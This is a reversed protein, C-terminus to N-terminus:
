PKSCASGEAACCVRMARPALGPSSDGGHTGRPGPGARGVGGELAHDADHAIERELHPAIAGGAGYGGFRRQLAIEAEAAQLPYLEQRPEFRRETLRERVPGQLDIGGRPQRAGDEVESALGHGRARAALAHAGGGVGRLSGAGDVLGKVEPGPGLGISRADVQALVVAPLRREGAPTEPPLRRRDRSGERLVRGPCV